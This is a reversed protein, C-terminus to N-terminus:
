GGATGRGVHAIRNLAADLPQRFMLKALRARTLVVGDGLLDSRRAEPATAMISGATVPHLRGRHVVAQDIENGDTAGGEALVERLGLVLENSVALVKRYIFPLNDRNPPKPRTYGSRSSTVWWWVYERIGAPVACASGFPRRPDDTTNLDEWTYRIIPWETPWGTPLTFCQTSIFGTFWRGEAQMPWLARRFVGHPLVSACASALSSGGGKLGDRVLASTMLLTTATSDHLERGLTWSDFETLASPHHHHVWGRPLDLRRPVAASDVLDRHIVTLGAERVLDDVYAPADDYGGFEASSNHAM